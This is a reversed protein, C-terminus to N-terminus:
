RRGGPRLDIDYGELEWLHSPGATGYEVEMFRGRRFVSVFHDGTLRVDFLFPGTPTTPGSAHDSLHVTVDLKYGSAGAFQVAFPYIRALLNRQRGDGLAIRGFRAFSVLAASDATSATNLTFVKGSEDGFLNFPFAASFFSDNWAFDVTEWTETLQDWTLTTQREFFGSATFPCDRKTYPTPDRPGVDELYHESFATRPTEQSGTNADAVLPLVWLLDGNEEDFHSFALAIRNPDRERLVQRWVHSKNRQLTVGDFTYHDDPGIFEHFDGFDAVLRGSLPGVNASSVRFIFVLPDGVFQTLVASRNGYVVLNDGLTVLGEIGDDGDHVVFEGALGAAMEEPKTVDSNKITTPKVEGANETINGYIMMNKFQHLEKAVFTLGTLSTVQADTGNWKVMTDVGNTAFWLDEDDPQADFFTETRWYDSIAGTFVLRGTYNGAGGTGTYNATLTVQVASDVTLIEYWGGNGTADPDVESNSGFFM